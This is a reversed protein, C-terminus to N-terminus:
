LADCTCFLERDGPETVAVEWMVCALPIKKNNNYYFILM